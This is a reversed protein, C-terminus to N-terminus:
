LCGRQSEAATASGAPCVCWRADRGLAPPNEGQESSGRWFDPLFGIISDLRGRPPGRWLVRPFHDKTGSKNYICLSGKEWSACVRSVESSPAWEQRCTMWLLTKHEASGPPCPGARGDRWQGAQSYSMTPCSVLITCDRRSCKSLFSDLPFHNGQSWIM